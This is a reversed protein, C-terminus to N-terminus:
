TGLVSLSELAFLIPYASCHFCVDLIMIIPIVIIMPVM